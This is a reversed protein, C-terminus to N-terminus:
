NWGKPFVVNKLKNMAGPLSLKVGKGSMRGYGNYSPVTLKVGSRGMTDKGAFFYRVADMSDSGRHAPKGKPMGDKDEDWAYIEYDNWINTSAKTVAIKKDSVVKIGYEVSGKEKDAGEIKIKYSKIEEISKPEASDAIVLGEGYAKIVRAVADNTMSTGYVVEDLYYIGDCYWIGVVAVPDPWWGFDMGYGMFKAEKPVQEVQTWGHYIKGRVVEPVLGQIMQHYYEPKHQEYAKYRLITHQDLNAVNSLFNGGMFVVDKVEDKLKLNYFGPVGSDICDFWKQIIWHNKAPPNLMMVIKIDGKVTRLTDDLTMFEREGVEEAEEIVVTNYNALSKLKASHGGSSQRFGHAKISNQGYEATMMSEGIDLVDEVRQEQVRDMFEQWISSRIDSHIERMIAARFFKKDLLRSLLYQSGATSRGAGRGGLLIYYRGPQEWLPAFIENIAQSVKIM